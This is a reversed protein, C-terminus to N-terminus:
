LYFSSLPDISNPTICVFSTQFTYRLQSFLYKFWILVMDYCFVDIINGLEETSYGYVPAFRLWSIEVVFNSKIFFYKHYKNHLLGNFHRVKLSRTKTHTLLNYM